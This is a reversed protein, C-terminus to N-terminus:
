GPESSMISLFTSSVTFNSIWNAMTSLGNGIGRLRLPYIEANVTWSAPGIGISFFAIYALISILTSWKTFEALHEFYILLYFSYAMGLLSIVCGPLTILMIERRGFRDAYKVAVLTGLANMGAIPISAM